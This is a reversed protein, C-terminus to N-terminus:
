VISRTSPARPTKGAKLQLSVIKGALLPVMGRGDYPCEAILTIDRFGAEDMASLYERKGSAVTLWQAWVELGPSNTPPLPGEVVLDSLYIKGGPRLVRLAERFAAPKDSSHNMVCNSVIVDMSRSALPLDEIRGVKFEVNEYRGESAYQQAKRVIEPTMDVGIVKGQPGVRRAAVFVDLGAGCGLDLVTQGEHLGALAAPNGCGLGAEVAGTPVDGLDAESYGLERARGLVRPDGHAAMQAYQKRFAKDHDQGHDM